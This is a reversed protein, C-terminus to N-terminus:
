GHRPRGAPHVGPSAQQEGAAFIAESTRSPARKDARDCVRACPAPHATADRRERKTRSPFDSASRSYSTRSACPRLGCCFAGGRPPKPLPPQRPLCLITRTSGGCSSASLGSRRGKVKSPWAQRGTRAALRREGEPHPEPRESGALLELAGRLPGAGPGVGPGIEFGGLIALNQCRPPGLTRM